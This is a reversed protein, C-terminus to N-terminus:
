ERKGWFVINSRHIHTHTHTCVHIYMHKSLIETLYPRVVYAANFIFIRYQLTGGQGWSLQTTQRTKFDSQQEAPRAPFRRTGPPRRAPAFRPPALPAAHPAPRRPRRTPNLSLTASLRPLSSFSFARNQATHFDNLKMIRLYNRVHDFIM